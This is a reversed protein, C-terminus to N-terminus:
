AIPIVTVAGSETGVALRRDDPSWRLLTGADDGEDRQVPRRDKGPRWVATLGDRGTSALLPGARQYALSVIPGAHGQLMLPRTGEPGRGSCDWIVITDGGGTALYRSRPNWALERVKLPYGHMQLDRGSATIWFHITADQDGTAIYRGDPSWAIVLTSGQWEHRRVPSTRGPAWFTLGGYTAVVVELSGPRWAIDAITSRHDVHESILGGDRDWFRLTRGAATALVPAAPCWAAHEVWSSGGDLTTLTEGTSPDHIRARGDQGATALRDGRASWSLATNGFGHGPLDRRTEGSAGDLLLIPGDVPAAALTSGDPSWAMAIVHDGVMMSWGEVTSVRPSRTPSVRPSRTPSVRPM